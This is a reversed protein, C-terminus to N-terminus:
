EYKINGKKNGRFYCKDDILIGSVKAGTSISIGYRQTRLVQDDIFSCSYFKVNSIIGSLDYLDIRIGDNTNPQSIGNNLFTCKSFMLNALGKKQSTTILAAGISNNKSIVLNSFSGNVVDRAVSLGYNKNQSITSSKITINECNDMYIGDSNRYSAMDSIKINKIYGFKGLLSIGNGANGFCKTDSITIDECTEQLDPEINIGTKPEKGNSNTFESNSITLNKVNTVSIGSRLNNDCVVDDISIDKPSIGGGIYLGDGWFKEFRSGKISIGQSNSSIYIGTGWEGNKSLHSYRDGIFLGGTVSVNRVDSIDFIRYFDESNPIAKFTAGEEFIISQNSSVKLGVKTNIMYIGKPIIIRNSAKLARQIASTDDTIGDGIAGADRINLNGNSDEPVRMSILSNSVMDNIINGKFLCNTEVIIERIGTGFGVTLGYRQTPVKQDDVIKCSIFKINELMKSSDFNDIRVGDNDGLASKSNNAFVCNNFIIGKTGVKQESVVLSVGRLGNYKSSVESFNAGNIDRVFTLGDKLNHSFEANKVIISTCTNMNIGYGNDGSFCNIINVGAIEGKIGRITIGNGVNNIAWTNLISVNKVMGGTKTEINIGAQSGSGNSDEFLCTEIVIDKANTISLGQRKNDSCIISELRINESATDDGINIGDGWFEKIRMNKITISKNNSGIDVGMGGEGDTGTHSYRDGIITGGEILTNSIGSIYFLFYFPSRNPIIKLMAHDSLRITQNSRPRLGILGDILYVGDPIYVNDYTDIAKQIAYTDNTKGDGCAGLEMVNFGKAISSSSLRELSAILKEKGTKIKTDLARCSLVALEGRTLADTNYAISEGRTLMGLSVSKEIATDFRFDGAEENYGLARLLFTIFEKASIKYQSGFANDSIGTTLNNDFAYNVYKIGWRPVDTFKCEVESYYDTDKEKGLLKILLVLGELRTAKDDLEFGQGTGKLIGLEKLRIASSIEMSKGTFSESINNEAYLNSQGFISIALILLILCGMIRKM